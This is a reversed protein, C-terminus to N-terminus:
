VLLTGFGSEVQALEGYQIEGASVVIVNGAIQEIRHYVKHM